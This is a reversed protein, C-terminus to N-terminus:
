FLSEVNKFDRKVEYIDKDSICELHDFKANEIMSIKETKQVHINNNEHRSFFNM